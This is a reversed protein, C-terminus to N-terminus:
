RRGIPSIGSLDCRVVDLLAARHSRVADGGHSATASSQHLLVNAENGAWGLLRIPNADADTDPDAHPLAHAHPDAHDVPDSVRVDIAYADSHTGADAVPRADPKAIPRPQAIKFADTRYGLHRQM